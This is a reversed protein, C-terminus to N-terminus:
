CFGSWRRVGGHVRARLGRLEAFGFSLIPEPDRLGIFSLVFGVFFLQGGSSVKFTPHFCGARM